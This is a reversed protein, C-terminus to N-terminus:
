YKLFKMLIEKVLFVNIYANHESDVPYNRTKMDALPM